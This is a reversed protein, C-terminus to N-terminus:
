KVMWERFFCPLSSCQVNVNQYMKYCLLCYLLCSPVTKKLGDMVTDMKAVNFAGWFPGPWNPSVTPSSPGGTGRRTDKVQDLLLQGNRSIESSDKVKKLCLVRCSFLMSFVPSLYLGSDEM